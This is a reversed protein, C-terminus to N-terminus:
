TPYIRFKQLRFAFNIATLKPRANSSLNSTARYAREGMVGSVVGALFSYSLSVFPRTNESIKQALERTEPTAYSSLLNYIGVRSSLNAVYDGAGFFYFAAGGLLSSAIAVQTARKDRIENHLIEGM